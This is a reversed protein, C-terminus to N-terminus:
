AAVEHVRAEAETLRLKGSILRPLLTDRISALAQALANNASV